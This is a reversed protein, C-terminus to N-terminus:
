TGRRTGPRDTPLHFLWLTGALPSLTTPFFYFVNRAFGIDQQFCLPASYLQRFLALFHSFVFCNNIIRLSLAFFYKFVFPM